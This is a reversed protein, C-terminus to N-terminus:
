PTIDRNYVGKKKEGWNHPRYTFRCFHLPVVGRLQLLSFFQIDPRVFAPMIYIRLLIAIPAAKIRM